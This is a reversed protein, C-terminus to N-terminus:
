TPIVDPMAKLKKCCWSGLVLCEGTDYGDPSSSNALMLNWWQDWEDETKQCIQRLQPEIAEALGIIVQLAADRLASRDANSYYESKYSSQIGDSGMQKPREWILPSSFPIAMVKTKADEFGPVEKIQQLITMVNSSINIEELFQLIWSNLDQMYANECPAYDEVGSTFYVGHERSTLGDKFSLDEPVKANPLLRRIQFEMDRIEVSGGPATIRHLEEILEAFNIIENTYVVNSASVVVLDFHEDPFPFPYNRVDHQVFKWNVGYRNLDPAFHGIDIGIFQAHHVGMSCFYEHCLSTWYADGCCLDLVRRPPNLRDIPACTPAGLTLSSISVFLNQRQFEKLDSPLFYPLRDMYKRGHWYILPHRENPFCLKTFYANTSEASLPRLEEVRDTYARPHHRSKRNLSAPLGHSSKSSDSQFSHASSSRANSPDHPTHISKGGRRLSHHSKWRQLREM